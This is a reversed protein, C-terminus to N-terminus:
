LAHVLDASHCSCGVNWQRHNATALAGFRWLRVVGVFIHRAPAVYIARNGCRNSGELPSHNPHIFQRDICPRRRWWRDPGLASDGLNELRHTTSKAVDAFSSNAHCCSDM